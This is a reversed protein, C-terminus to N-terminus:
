GHPTVLYKEGTAMQAYDRIIDPTLMEDLKVRAKYHSAFTTTLGALVRNRMQSVTAEDCTALFPRLLWGSVSWSFGYARTLTTPSPDLFGYIYMRKQRISGYRAFETLETAAVREMARLCSDTVSGGGIPDFGVFAQTAGIADALSAEYNEASSNVVHDAGQGRLLEAQEERRVVNVLDLGDERCIRGLMQGLNSAAAAHVLAQEGDRKVTEVFGLATMPNVYASAGDECSHQGLPLCTSADVLAYHGFSSGPACAVRKGMLASAEPEEGTSIVTGAGEIGVTQPIGHRAAQAAVFQPAIQATMKGPSFSATGLDVGATMLSLDSPNIPAAEMRILVQNRVPSPFTIEKLELTLTGDAALTSHLQMGTTTM